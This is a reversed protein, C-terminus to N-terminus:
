IAETHRVSARLAARQKKELIIATFASLRWSNDGAVARHGSGFTL